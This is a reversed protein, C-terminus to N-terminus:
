ALEIQIFIRLRRQNKSINEKRIFGLCNFVVQNQKWDIPARSNRIYNTGSVKFEATFIHLQM